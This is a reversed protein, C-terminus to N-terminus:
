RMPSSLPDTTIKNLFLSILGLMTCYIMAIINIIVRRAAQFAGKWEEEWSCHSMDKFHNRGVIIISLNISCLAKIKCTMKLSSM